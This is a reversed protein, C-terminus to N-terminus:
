HKEIIELGNLKVFEEIAENCWAKVHLNEDDKWDYLLVEQGLVSFQKIRKSKGDKCELEKGGHALLNHAKKDWKVFYLCSEFKFKHNVTGVFEAENKPPNNFMMLILVIMIGILIIEMKKM